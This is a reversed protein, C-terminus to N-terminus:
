FGINLTSYVLNIIGSLCRFVFLINSRYEERVHLFLKELYGKERLRAKIGM